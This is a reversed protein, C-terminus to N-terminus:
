KLQNAPMFMSVEESGTSQSRLERFKRSSKSMKDRAHLLWMIACFDRFGCQAGGISSPPKYYTRRQEESSAAEPKRKGLLSCITTTPKKFNKKNKLFDELVWVFQEYSLFFRM